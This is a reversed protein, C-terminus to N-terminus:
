KVFFPLPPPIQFKDDRFDHRGLPRKSLRYELAQGAEQFRIYHVTRYYYYAIELLIYLWMPWIALILSFL